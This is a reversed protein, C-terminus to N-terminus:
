SGAPPAKAPRAPGRNSIPSVTVVPAARISPLANASPKRARIPAHGSVMVVADDPPLQMVEGPTLLPRATEQRAPCRVPDHEDAICGALHRWRRSAADLELVDPHRSAMIAECHVGPPDLHISPGSGGEGKGKKWRPVDGAWSATCLVHTHGFKALCSGEAYRTVGAELSVPRLQNPSRGSPRM